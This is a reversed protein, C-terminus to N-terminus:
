ALVASAAVRSRRAILTARLVEGTHAVTLNAATGIYVSSHLVAFRPQTLPALIVSWRHTKQAMFGLGGIFALLAWVPNAQRLVEWSAEFRAERIALWLFVLGIALGALTWRTRGRMARIRLRYHASPGIARAYRRRGPARP